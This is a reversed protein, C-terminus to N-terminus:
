AVEERAPARGAILRDLVAADHVVRGDRLEVIRRAHRSVDHEHTVILVTNGQENLSQFLEM